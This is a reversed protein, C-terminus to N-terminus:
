GPLVVAVDRQAVLINDIHVLLRFRGAYLGTGQCARCQRLVNARAGCTACWGPVALRYSGDARDEVYVGGGGLPPPAKADAAAAGLASARAAVALGPQRTLNGFSDRAELTFVHKESAAAAEGGDSV